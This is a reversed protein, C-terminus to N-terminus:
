NAWDEGIHYEYGTDTDYLTQSSENYAQTLTYGNGLPRQFGTATLTM